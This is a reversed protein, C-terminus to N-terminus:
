TLTFCKASVIADITLRLPEIDIDIQNQDILSAFYEYLRKYEQNDENVLPVGAVELSRASQSLKLKWGDSCDVLLERCDDQVRWDLCIEIDGSGDLFCGRIAAAIPASKGQLVWVKSETVVVRKPLVKTMIAIANIGADFVGFGKPEWIWEQGPHWREVNELWNIRFRSVERESL